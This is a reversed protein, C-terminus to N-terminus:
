PPSTTLVCQDTSNKLTESETQLLAATEPDSVQNETFIEPSGPVLADDRKTGGGESGGAAIPRRSGSGEM